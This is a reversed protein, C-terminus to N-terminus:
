SSFKKLVARGKETLVMKRKFAGKELTYGKETLYATIAALQMSKLGEKKIFDNVAEASTKIAKLFNLYQGTLGEDLLEKERGSVPNLAALGKDTIKFTYMKAGFLGERQIYGGRDLREVSENTHKSDTGLYDSFDRMYHHGIRLLRLIELDNNELVVQERNKETPVLEWGEQGYYKPKGTLSAIVATVFTVVFGLTALYVYNGISFVGTLDLITFVTMTVMGTLAGVFAGRSNFKKWVAGLGLLIAPPVLWCNAFAFLYTPGGPFQCLIFTVVGVLIMAYKSVRLTKKQSAKPNILRQYIDRTLIASAGLSSTSSTSVSAAVAGIVALSGFIPILTSAIFGYAGTPEITGGNLTLMDGHYVGFYAGVIALPIMFVVFLIVAAIMFSRRAVKESRCNAVKMWYYNNGWVLAAAFCIVFNLISPYTIAGVPMNGLLGHDVINGAPWAAVVQSWSGNQQMVLIMVLPIVVIGLLVQVFDTMSIAWMGSIYTFAIIVAFIIATIVATNWGTYAGISQVSSVINNAMVGCMGVVSTIAVVARTKSDFRMELFEPLTQAGSRHIFKPYLIGFLFLGCFSYILGWGIGGLLGYQITFGPVLTITTGAFGIAIVGFVNIPTSIERGALIYDSSDSVWNKSVFSAIFLFAIFVVFVIVFVMNAWM